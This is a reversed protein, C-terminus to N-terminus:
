IHENYYLNSGRDDGITMIYNSTKVTSLSEPFLFDIKEFSPLRFCFHPYAVDEYLDFATVILLEGCSSFHLKQFGFDEKGSPHSPMKLAMIFGLTESNFILISNEDKKFTAIRKYKSNYDFSSNSISVTYVNGILNPFDLEFISDSFEGIEIKNKTKTKHNYKILEIIGNENKTFGFLSNQFQDYAIINDIGSERNVHSVSIDGLSDIIIIDNPKVSVNGLTDVLIFDNPLNSLINVCNNQGVFRANEFLEEKLVGRSIISKNNNDILIYHTGKYKSDGNRNDILDISIFIIDSDVLYFCRGKRTSIQEANDFNFINKKLLEIGRRDIDWLIIFVESNFWSDSYFAECLMVLHSDKIITQEIIKYDTKYKYEVFM